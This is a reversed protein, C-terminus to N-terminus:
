PTQYLVMANLNVSLTNLADNCLVHGVARPKIDITDISSCDVFENDVGIFVLM